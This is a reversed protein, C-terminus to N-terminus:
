SLTRRLFKEAEPLELNQAFTISSTRRQPKPATVAVRRPDIVEVTGTNNSPTRRRVSIGNAKSRIGCSRLGSEALVKRL